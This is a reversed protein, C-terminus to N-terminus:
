VNNMCDKIPHSQHHEAEELLHALRHACELVDEVVIFRYVEVQVKVQRKLAMGSLRSTHPTRSRTMKLLSVLLVLIMGESDTLIIM